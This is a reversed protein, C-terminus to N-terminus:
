NNSDTYSKLDYLQQSSNGGRSNDMTNNGENGTAENNESNNANDVSAQSNTTSSTNNDANTQAKSSDSYESSSVLKGNQKVWNMIESSGNGQGMGGVMVYRVEGNVVLKKFQELTIAKNNGLFGGLSMVPEGTNTIIDAASNSNSVVLLYKQKATKNKQLFEILKTDGNSATMGQGQFGGAGPGQQNNSSLLELGAAPFSGNLKTTLVQRKYM